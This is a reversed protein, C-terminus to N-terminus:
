FLTDRLKMLALLAFAVEDGGFFVWAIIKFIPLLVCLMKFHLYSSHKTQPPLKTAHFNVGSPEVGM